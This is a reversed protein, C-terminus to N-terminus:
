PNTSLPQPNPLLDVPRDSGYDAEGERVSEFTKAKGSRTIKAEISSILVALQKLAIEYREELAAVRDNAMQGVKVAYGAHTLTERAERRSRFLCQLYETSYQSYFGETMNAIVSESSWLMQIRLWRFEYTFGRTAEEIELALDRLGRFVRLDEVSNVVERATQDADDV